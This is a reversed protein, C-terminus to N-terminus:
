WSIIVQGNGMRAGPSNSQNSGTNFSGGGGGGPYDTGDDNYDNSGGAGGSYGGGGGGGNGGAGGGGFGGLAQVICDTPDGMPDTGGAGGNLFAFGGGNGSLGGDGVLGGGGSGRYGCGGSNAAGFAGGGGNTGGLAGDVSGGDPGTGGPLGDPSVYGDVGEGGGGGAIVLPTNDSRVVFSGGGGGGGYAEEGQGGVLITLQQASSVAVDGRMRAGLGSRTGGGQAGYAEITISTCGNPVTFSQMAGTYGFTTSGSTCGAIVLAKNAGLSGAAGPAPLTLAAANGLADGITGGNLALASTNLYDLDATAQGNGVTYDFTLTSTGTGTSYGVSPAGNNLTLRPTGTVVVIESFVVQISIVDTAGYTGNPTSSTVNVVTPAVADVIIDQNAGLSGAQGPVPLTLIADGGASTVTGGNLTLATTSTYDLDASQEPAAVTYSFTLTNTGTGGTYAVPPAGSNLSLQPTGTVTVTASFRVEVAITAAAPYGGDGTPSSVDVIAAATPSADAASGADTTAGADATPGADPPTGSVSGCASILLGFYIAFAFRSSPIEVM